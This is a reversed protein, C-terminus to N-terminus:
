REERLRNESVPTIRGALENYIEIRKKCITEQSYKEHVYQMAQKLKQKTEDLRTVIEQLQLAFDEEKDAIYLCSTDIGEAGVTTSIVPVQNAIGYLIKTRIGSGLRIPVIMVSENFLHKYDEMYGTFIVKGVVSLEKVTEDTWEGIIYLPMKFENWLPEMCNKVFWFVGEKNPFHLEGGIFILKNFGIITKEYVFESELVPFPIPVVKDELEKLIARDHESFVIVKNFKELLRMEIQRTTEIIYDLYPSPMKSVAAATKLMQYRIEHHIFVKPIGAPLVNVLDLMDFFELQIIDYSGGKVINLLQTCFAHGKLTIPKLWYPNDFQDLATATAKKGLIKKAFAKVKSYVKHLASPSPPNDFLITKITVQPLLHALERSHQEQQLTYTSFCLTIHALKQLEQLIAFQAM